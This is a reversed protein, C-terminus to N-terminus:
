GKSSLLEKRAELKILQRKAEMGLDSAAGHTLLRVRWRDMVKNIVRIDLSIDTQEHGM